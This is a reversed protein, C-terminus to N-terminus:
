RVCIVNYKDKKDHLFIYGHNFACEWGVDSDNLKSSSSWYIDSIIYPFLSSPEFISRDVITRLHYMEPLKWDDFGAYDLDECYSLAESWNKEKVVSKTWQLLTKKDVVIINDEVGEEAYRNGESNESFSGRVCILSKAEAKSAGGTKGYNFDVFFAYDNDVALVGSTWFVISGIHPFDSAPSSKSINVLSELEYSDPLRWDSKNSYEISDCYDIAQQWTKNDVATKTWELKTYKDSVIIENNGSESFRDVITEPNVYPSYWCQSQCQFGSEDGGCSIIMFFGILVVIIKRM